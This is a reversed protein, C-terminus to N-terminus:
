EVYKFPTFVGLLDNNYGLTVSLEYPIHPEIEPMIGNAWMVDHSMYLSFDDTKPIFRVVIGIIPEEFSWLTLSDLEDACVYTTNDIMEIDVDTGELRVTAPLLSEIESGTYKSIFDAM